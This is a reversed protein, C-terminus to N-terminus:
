PVWPLWSIPYRTREYPSDRKGIDSPILSNIICSDYHIRPDYRDNYEFRNETITDDICVFFEQFPDTVVGRFLWDSLQPTVPPPSYYIRYAIHPNYACPSLLGVMELLPKAAVM